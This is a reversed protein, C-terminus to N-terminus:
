VFATKARRVTQLAFRRLSDFTLTRPKRYEAGPVNKNYRMREGGAIVSEGSKRCLSRKQAGESSRRPMKKKM